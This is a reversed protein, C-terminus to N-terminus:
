IQLHNLYFQFITSFTVKARTNFINKLMDKQNLFVKNMWRKSWQDGNNLDSFESIKEKALLEAATEMFPGLGIANEAAVRFFYSKGVTLGHAVANQRSATFSLSTWAKRETERKEVVYNSIPSGGDNEPFYWNLKCSDSTLNEATFPIGVAGPVDSPPPCL